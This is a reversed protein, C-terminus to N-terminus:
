RRSHIDGSFQSTRHRSYNELEYTRPQHDLRVTREIRVQVGGDDSYQPSVTHALGPATLDFPLGSKHEFQSRVARSVDRATGINHTVTVVAVELSEREKERALGYLHILLRQSMIWSVCYALSAAATQIHQSQRYLVLNLVNVATLAILYGLGDYLMMKTIQSMVSNGTSAFKYKVLYFISIITASSDYLIALVYFVWAGLTQGETIARCNNYKESLYPKRQYVSSIWQLLVIV